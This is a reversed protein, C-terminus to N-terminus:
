SNSTGFLLSFFFTSVVGSIPSVVSIPAYSYSAFDAIANFVYLFFVVWFYPTQMIHPRTEEPEQAM